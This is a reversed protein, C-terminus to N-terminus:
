PPATGTTALLEAPDLLHHHHATNVRPVQDYDLWAPPTWHPRGNIM